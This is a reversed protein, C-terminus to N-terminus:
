LISYQTQKDMHSLKIALETNSRLYKLNLLSSECLSTNHLSILSYIIGCLAVYHWMFNNCIGVTIM